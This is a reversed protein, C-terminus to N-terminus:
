SATTTWWRSTTRTWTPSSRTSRTARTWAWRRASRSSASARPRATARRRRAAGSTGTARELDEPHRKGQLGGRGAHGELVPHAHDPAEDPLRLLRAQRDEREAPLGDRADGAPLEGEDAHPHRVPGRAPRRRGVQGGGPLRVRRRVRRRAAHGLRAGGGGEAGIGAALLAVARGQRRDEERVQRGHRRAGQRGAPLVGQDLVGGPNGAGDGRICLAALAVAAFLKRLM